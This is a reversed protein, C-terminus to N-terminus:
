GVKGGTVYESNLFQFISKQMDRAEEVSFRLFFDRDDITVKFEIGEECYSSGQRISASHEKGKHIRSKSKYSKAQM